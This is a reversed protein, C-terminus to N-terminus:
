VGFVPNVPVSKKMKLTLSPVCFEVTSPVMVIPTVGIGAWSWSAVAGTGPDEPADSMVKGDTLNRSEPPLTILLVLSGTVTDIEDPISPVSPPAVFTLAKFPTAVNLPNDNAPLTPM